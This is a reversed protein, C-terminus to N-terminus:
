SHTQTRLHYYVHASYKGAIQNIPIDCAFEITSSNTNQSHFNSYSYGDPFQQSKSWPGESLNAEGTYKCTGNVEHIQWASPTGTNDGYGYLWVTEADNDTSFNVSQTRNGGRVFIHSNNIQLAYPDTWGSPNVSGSGSPNNIHASHLLDSVNVTMSYNGNSRTKVTVNTSEGSNFNDNYWSSGNTSHREGPAGFITADDASVIETYSYIGFEDFVWSKYRDIGDSDQAPGWREGENEVTINFNWSWTNDFSEWCCTSPQYGEGTPMGNTNNVSDNVWDTSEGPGPAYRFQFGPKFCFSINHTETQGSIGLTDSVNLESFDGITIETNNSPYTLNFYPTGSLNEYYMFFNRNGGRNGSANYGTGAPNDSGNDHWGSINIYEINDWGQDSSINIIFRYWTENDTETMNNRKSVWPQNDIDTRGNFTTNTCKQFDYWLIRPRKSEVTVNLWSENHWASENNACNSDASGMLVFPKFVVTSTQMNFFITAILTIIVLTSLIKKMEIKMKGCGM